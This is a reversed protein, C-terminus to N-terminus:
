ETEWKDVYDSYLECIKDVIEDAELHTEAPILHNMELKMAEYAADQEAKRRDWREQYNRYEQQSKTPPGPVPRSSWSWVIGSEVEQIDTVVCPGNTCERIDGVQV